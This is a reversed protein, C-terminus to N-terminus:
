SKSRAQNLRRFHDNIRKAENTDDIAESQSRGKERQREYAWRDFDTWNDPLVSASPFPIIQPRCQALLDDLYAAHEAREADSLDPRTQELIALHNTARDREVRRNPFPIIKSTM